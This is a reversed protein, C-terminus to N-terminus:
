KMPKELLFYLINDSFVPDKTLGIHNTFLFTVEDWKIPSKLTPQWEAGIREDMLASSRLVTHDGAQWDIVELDKQKGAKIVSATPIADGAILKLFVNDPHTAPKDLAAHFQKARQLCKKMHDFAIEKREDADEIEHLLGAIVKQEKPNALGWEQEIWREPSLFDNITKEPDEKYVVANHRERPMLQYISPLTSLVSAPFDDFIRLELGKVAKYFGNASGANPTGILAVKEVLAAGKWTIPPITGNDPLLADGYRLMYRTLLGGMSHAVIDFKVDTKINYRNLYEKEVYAKKEKIFEYLFAGNQANDLRWDYHFQFCTFHEDGYDVVKAMSLGEDRYGGAGLSKLIHSYALIELPVGLLSIKLRDLAGVSEVSDRLENLGVGKEMPIALLRADEPKKLSIGDGGFAGWVVKGSGADVLRSGLIGPIVIVPNRDPGHYQASRNYLSGINATPSQKLSSCGSSLLITIIGSFIFLQKIM